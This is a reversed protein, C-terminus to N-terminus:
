YERAYSFADIMKLIAAVRDAIAAPSSRESVSPNFLANWERCAEAPINMYML